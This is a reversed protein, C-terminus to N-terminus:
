GSAKKGFSFKQSLSQRISFSERTSISERSDDTMSMTPAISERPGGAMSEREAGSSSRTRRKYVCTDQDVRIGWQLYDTNTAAELFQNLKEIREQIIKESFNGFLQKNPLDPIDKRRYGNKTQLTTALNRFTSYRHWVYLTGRSNTEIQLKYEVFQRGERYTIRSDVVKATILSVEQARVLKSQLTLVQHKLRENERLLEADAHETVYAAMKARLAENEAQIVRNHTLAAMAAKQAEMAAAEAEAVRAAASALISQSAASMRDGDSGESSTEVPEEDMHIPTLGEAALRAKEQDAKLSAARAVAEAEAAARAKAETARKLELKRARDKALTVRFRRRAQMGRVRSQMRITGRKMVRFRKHQFFMRVISQVVKAAVKMALFHKRKVYGRMHTQIITAQKRLVVSRQDELHQLLGSSFYVKSKGIAFKANQSSTETIGLKELLGLVMVEPAAKRLKSPCIIDFRRAFEVLTLRNPFAARSIRIAAIVGACRLQDVVMQRDFEHASKNANPKICRVYQTTTKAIQEM